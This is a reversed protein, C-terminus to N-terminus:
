KKRVINEITHNLRKVFDDIEQDENMLDELALDM